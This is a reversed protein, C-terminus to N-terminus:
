KKGSISRELRINSANTVTTATDTSAVTSTAYLNATSTKKLIGTIKREARDPSPLEDEQIQSITEHREIIKKMNQSRSSLDSELDWTKFKKDEPKQNLSEFNEKLKQKPKLRPSDNSQADLPENVTFFM